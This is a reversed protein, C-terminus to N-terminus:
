GVGSAATLFRCVPGTAEALRRDLTALPVDFAEAIAVYWADYATVNHRLEWIRPAFPAYPQLEVHLGTLDAHALSAMASSIQHLREARRLCSAVEAPLLQPAVLDNASMLDRAWDGDAAPQQLAAVLVSADVVVM